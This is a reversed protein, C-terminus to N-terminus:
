IIEEPSRIELIKYGERLNISNFQQIRNLNVIHRFNWSVLVDVEIVTAIAIHLADDKYKESVIKQKMYKEFLEIMEDTVSHKIYNITELNAIVFDPAGKLLEGIVHDSIIPVYVGKKFLKFLKRTPIKQDEDFYGGIVSNEIYIKKIKSSM